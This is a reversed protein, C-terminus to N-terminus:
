GNRCGEVYIREIESSINEWSFKQCEKICNFSINEYNEIIKLVVDAIEQYDDPDVAYGVHGDEFQGDFGQGRTYVVPMGQTMAEAYVRGFSEFISPMVYIHSDRYKGVLEEKTMYPLISVKQYNSIVRMIKESVIQGIITVEICLGKKRLIDAAELVAKMNKNADIKGVCLLRVSNEPEIKKRPVWQNELWFSELGNAIVYSKRMVECQNKSKYCIDVFKKRYSESLFQIGSADNVIKRAIIKFFPFRLFDNIDTNRVSVIYPIGYERKICRAVWGGNFLTHSHLIDYKHVDVSKTLSNFIKSQKWFYIFRDYKNFCERHVVKSDMIARYKEDITANKVVANFALVHHGKLELYDISDRFIMARHYFTCLYLINM